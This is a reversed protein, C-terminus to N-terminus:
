AKGLILDLGHCGRVHPGPSRLHALLENDPPCGADILADSLVALRDPDLHGSPLLREEYAAHGLKVILEDHLALLPPAVALPRFPNGFLERILDSLLVRDRSAKDKFHRGRRLLELPAEVYAKETAAVEAIWCAEWYPLEEASLGYRVARVTQRARKLAAKSARRDAFREITEVAELCRGDKLWEGLRSCAAGLLRLKRENARGSVQLFAIMTQPDTSTLWESETM